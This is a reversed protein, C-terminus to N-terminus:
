YDYCLNYFINIGNELLIYDFNKGIYFFIVSKAIYKQM